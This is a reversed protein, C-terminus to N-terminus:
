DHESTEADARAIYALLYAIELTPGFGNHVSKYPVVICVYWGDKIRKIVISDPKEANVLPMTLAPDHCFDPPLDYSWGLEDHYWCPEDKPGYRCDTWGQLEAMRRNIADTDLTTM